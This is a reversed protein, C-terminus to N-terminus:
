FYLNKVLKMFTEYLQPLVGSNSLMTFYIKFFPAALFMIACIMLASALQYGIMEGTAIHKFTIKKQFVKESIFFYVATLPKALARRIAFFVIVFIISEIFM